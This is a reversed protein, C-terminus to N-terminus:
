FSGKTFSKIAKIECDDSSKVQDQIGIDPKISTTSGHHSKSKMEPNSCINVNVGTLIFCGIQWIATFDFCDSGPAILGDAQNSGTGSRQEARSSSDQVCGRGALGLDSTWCPFLSKISSSRMGTLDQRPRSSHDLDFSSAINAVKVFRAVRPLNSILIGQSSEFKRPSLTKRSHLSTKSRSAFHRSAISVPVYAGVLELEQKAIDVEKGTIVSVQM